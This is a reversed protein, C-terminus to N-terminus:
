LWCAVSSCRWLARYMRLAAVVEQERYSCVVMRQRWYAVVIWVAMKLLVSHDQYWAGSSHDAALALVNLREGEYVLVCRKLRARHITEGRGGQNWLETQTQCSRWEEHM